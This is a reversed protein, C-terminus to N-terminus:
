YNRTFYKELIEENGQATNDKARHIRSALEYADEEVMSMIAPYKQIMNSAFDGSRSGLQPYNRIAMLQSTFVPIYEYVYSVEISGVVANPECGTAAIVYLEDM